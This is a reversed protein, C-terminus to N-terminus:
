GTCHFRLHRLALISLPDSCNDSPQRAGSGKWPIAPHGRATLLLKLTPGKGKLVRTHCSEALLDEKFLPTSGGGTQCTASIEM